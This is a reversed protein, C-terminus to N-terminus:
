KSRRRKPKFWPADSVSPMNIYKERWEEQSCPILEYGDKAFSAMFKALHNPMDGAHVGGLYGDKVAVYAWAM